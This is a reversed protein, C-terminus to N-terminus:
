SHIFQKYGSLELNWILDPYPSTSTVRERCRIRRIFSSCSVFQISCCFSLRKWEWDQCDLTSSEFTFLVDIDTPPNSKLNDFHIDIAISSYSLLTNYWWLLTSQLWYRCTYSCPSEYHRSYRTTHQYYSHPLIQTTLIHTFRHYYCISHISHIFPHKLSLTSIGGYVSKTQLGDVAKRYFDYNKISNPM